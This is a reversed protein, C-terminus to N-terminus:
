FFNTSKKPRLNTQNTNDTPSSTSKKIEMYLHKIELICINLFFFFIGKMCLSSFGDMARNMEM